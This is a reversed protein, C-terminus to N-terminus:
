WNVRRIEWQWNKRSSQDVWQWSCSLIKLKSSPSVSYVFPEEWPWNRFILRAKLCYFEIWIVPNELTSLYICLVFDNSCYDVQYSRALRVLKHQGSPGIKCTKALSRWECMGSIENDNVECMPLLVSDVAVVKCMFTKLLIECRDSSLIECM